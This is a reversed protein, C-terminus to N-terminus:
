TNNNPRSITIWGRMRRHWSLLIFLNWIQKANNTKGSFHDDLMRTITTHNLGAQRINDATITDRIQEKFDNKIWLALPVFFPRKGGQVIRKPLYPRMARRLIHKSKLKYQAPIRNVCAIFDDDLYPFKFRLSTGRGVANLKMLWRESLIKIYSTLVQNVLTQANVARQAESVARYVEQYEFRLQAHLDDRFLPKQYQPPFPGWWASDRLAPPYGIGGLFQKFRADFACYRYSVPIIGMGKEFFKRFLAPVSEYIDAVRHALFSPYGMFLEDPGDGLFVDDVHVEAVPSLVGGCIVDDDSFPDDLRALLDKLFALAKSPTFMIERHQASFFSAVTRANSAESFSKEQFVATFTQLPTQPSIQKLVALLSSSDLGGSLFLGVRADPNLRRATTRCLVQYVDQSYHAEDRSPEDQDKFQIDWYPQLGLSKPRSLLFNGAPVRQIGQLLTDPSPVFGYAFYKPLAPTNVPPLCGTMKVITEMDESFFLYGEHRSYYIKRPHLKGNLLFFAKNPNDSLALSFDGNLRPFCQQKFKQFLHAILVPDSEAAQTRAGDPLLSLLEEKNCLLGSFLVSYGPIGRDAEGEGGSTQDAFGTFLGGTLSSLACNPRPLEVLTKIRHQIDPTLPTDWSVAGYFDTM